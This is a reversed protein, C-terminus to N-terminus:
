VSPRPRLASTEAYPPILNGASDLNIAPAGVIGGFARAHAEQEELEGFSDWITQESAASFSGTDVCPMGAKKNAAESAKFELVGQKQKEFYDDSPVVRKMSHLKKDVKWKRLVFILFKAKGSIRLLRVDEDSLDCVCCKDGACCTMDCRRCKVEMDGRGRGGGPRGGGKGESRGGGKGVFGRPVFAFAAAGVAPPHRRHEIAVFEVIKDIFFEVTTFSGSAGADIAFQLNTLYNCACHEEPFLSICHLIIAKQTQVLGEVKPWLDEIDELSKKLMEASADAPILIADLENKSKLKASTKEATLHSTLYVYLTYGEKKKLYRELVHKNQRPSLVTSNLVVTFLFGDHKDWLDVSAQIDALRVYGSIRAM